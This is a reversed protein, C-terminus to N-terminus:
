RKKTESFRNFNRTRLKPLSRLVNHLQFNVWEKIAWVHDILAAVMAPTETFFKVVNIKFEFHGFLSVFFKLLIIPFFYGRIKTNENMQSVFLLESKELKEILVLEKEANSLHLM